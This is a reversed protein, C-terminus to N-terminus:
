KSGKVSTSCYEPYQAKEKKSHESSFLKMATHDNFHQTFYYDWLLWAKESKFAFFTWGKNEKTKMEKEKCPLEKIGLIRIHRYTTYCITKGKLNIEQKPFQCLLLLVRSYTQDVRSGLL